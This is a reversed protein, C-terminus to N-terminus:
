GGNFGFEVEKEKAKKYFGKYSLGFVRELYAKLNHEPQMVAKIEIQKVLNVLFAGTVRRSKLQELVDETFLEAVAPNKCNERILEMYNKLDLRGFDLIMDFRGQRQAATDILQKDNTTALVYIENKEFGDLQQLFSGLSDARSRM